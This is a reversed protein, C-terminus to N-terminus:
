PTMIAGYDNRLLVVPPAFFYRTLDSSDYSISQSSFVGARLSCNVFSSLCGFGLDNVFEPILPQFGNIRAEASVSVTSVSGGKVLSM